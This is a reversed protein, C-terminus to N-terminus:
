LENEPLKRWRSAFTCIIRAPVMCTLLTRTPAQMFSFVMGCGSRSDPAVQVQSTRGAGFAARGFPNATMFGYDRTHWWCSRFNDPHPMITVGAFKKDVWGSYDCWAATKGWTEKENKRGESDLIRGGQGGKVAIATAMRLGLGMEEQDGFYFSTDASMFLSNWLILIGAPRVMFTYQCVEECVMVDRHMYANRVTFHGKPGDSVPPKIFEVHKVVAKNRWFDASGLDGFALWLGPHYEAHDAPDVGQRPPHNRTVKIGGPAHVDKFYPRPIQSDRYVYTALDQEDVRIVIHGPRAVFDIRGAVDAARCPLAPTGVAAVCAIICISYSHLKM